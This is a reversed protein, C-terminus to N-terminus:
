LRVIDYDRNLSKEYITEVCARMGFPYLEYDRPIISPEANGTRPKVSNALNEKPFHLQYHCHSCLTILNSLENVLEPFKSVPKIHHVHLDLDCGCKTCEYNDRELVLRRRERWQKGRILMNKPTAGNRWNPNKDGTRQKALGSLIKRHTLSKRHGKQTIIRPKPAIGHRHIWKHVATEGCGIKEAVEKMSLSSQYLEELIYKNRLEKYIKM